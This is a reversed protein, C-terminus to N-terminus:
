HDRVRRHVAALVDSSPNTPRWPPRVDDGAYRPVLHVHYHFVDQWAAPGNSQIVNMGPPQLTRRLQAAVRHVTRMIAAAGDETVSWIDPSHLRPVVLTHGRTAAGTDLFAVAVDDEFVGWSPADGRIISCFICDM